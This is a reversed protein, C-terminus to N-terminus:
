VGVSSDRQRIDMPPARIHSITSNLVIDKDLARQYFMLPTVTIEEARFVINDLSVLEQMSITLSCPKTVCFAYAHLPHLSLCLHSELASSQRQPVVKTEAQLIKCSTKM